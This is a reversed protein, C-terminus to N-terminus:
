TQVVRVSGDKQMQIITASKAVAPPAAASVKAIYDSDSPQQAQVSAPNAMLAVAVVCGSLIYRIM